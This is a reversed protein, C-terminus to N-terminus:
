RRKRKRKRASASPSGRRGGARARGCRARLGRWPERGRRAPAARAGGGLDAVARRQRHAVRAAPRRALARQLAAGADAALLVAGGAAPRRVAPGPARRHHDGARGHLAHAPRRADREPRGLRARARARARGAPRAAVRVRGPQQRHRGARRRREALRLPLRRDGLQHRAGLPRERTAQLSGAVLPVYVLVRPFAPRRARTAVALYTLAWGLAVYGIAVLVSSLLM